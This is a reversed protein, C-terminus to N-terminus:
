LWRWLVIMVLIVFCIRLLMVVNPVYKKMHDWMLQSHFNNRANVECINLSKYKNLLLESVHSPLGKTLDPVLHNVIITREDALMQSLDTKGICKTLSVYNVLNKQITTVSKNYNEISQEILELEAVRKKLEIIELEKNALDLKAYHFQSEAVDSPPKMERIQKLNEVFLADVDVAKSRTAYRRTRKLNRVPTEDSDSVVEPAFEEHFDSM